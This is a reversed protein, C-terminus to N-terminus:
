WVTPYPNTCSEKAPQGLTYFFVYTSSGSGLPNCYDLIFPLSFLLYPYFAHIWQIFLGASTAEFSSMSM